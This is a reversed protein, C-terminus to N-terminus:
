EVHPRLGRSRSYHVRVTGDPRQREDPAYKLSFPRFLVFSNLWVLEGTREISKRLAARIGDATLESRLSVRSDGKAKVVVLRGGCRQNLRGAPSPRASDVARRALRLLLAKLPEDPCLFPSRTM